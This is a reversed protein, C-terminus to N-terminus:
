IEEVNELKNWRFSLIECTYIVGVDDDPPRTAVRVAAWMALAAAVNVISEMADSGLAVSGTVRWAAAKLSLVVLAVAVSIKASTVLAIPTAPDTASLKM